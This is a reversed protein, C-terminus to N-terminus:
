DEAPSGLTYDLTYSGPKGSSTVMAGIGSIDQLEGTGSRPVITWQSTAKEGDFTGSTTVIFSGRRGHLVGSVQGLTVFTATGDNRYYLLDDWWSVGIIDGGAFEEEIRVHVFRGGDALTESKTENWSRIGL